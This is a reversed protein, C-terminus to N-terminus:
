RFLRAYGLLSLVRKVEEPYEYLYWNEVDEEYGFMPINILEFDLQGESDQLEIPLENLDEYHPTAYIVYDDKEWEVVGSHLSYCIEWGYRYFCKKFADEMIQHVREEYASSFTMRDPEDELSPMPTKAPVDKTWGFDNFEEKLIKKILNKMKKIRQENLALPKM